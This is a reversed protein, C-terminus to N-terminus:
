RNVLSGMSAAGMMWGDMTSGAGLMSLGAIAALVVAAVGGAIAFATSQLRVRVSQM